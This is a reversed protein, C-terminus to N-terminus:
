SLPNTRAIHREETFVANSLRNLGISVAIRKDVSSLISQAYEVDNRLTITPREKNQDEIVSGPSKHRTIWQPLGRTGGLAKACSAWGGKGKGVQAVENKLYALLDRTTQVVFAPQQNKPVRGRSNRAARHAAGGDFPKIERSRFQPCRAQMIGQARSWNGRKIEYWFANALKKEPFAKFVDAPTAYCKRVDRGTATEGIARSNDTLGYPQASTALSVAVLRGARRLQEPLTV